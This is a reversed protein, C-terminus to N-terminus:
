KKVKHFIRLKFDSDIGFIGDEDVSFLHLREPFNIFGQIRGEWSLIAIRRGSVLDGEESYEPILLFLENQASACTWLLASLEKKRGGEFPIAIKRPSFKRDVEISKLFRGERSLVHLSRDNFRWILFFEGEAGKKLFAQNRMTDYVADGSISADVAEWLLKGDRNFCHLMKGKLSPKLPLRSVIIRDEDRVLIKQPFFPVKFGGRYTGDKGIVQIRRNGGDAIYIKDGLIDMDSPLVFESPGQGSKGITNRFSGSKRFVRIEGEQADLVFISDEDLCIAVPRSFFLIDQEGEDLLKERAVYTQQPFGSCLALHGSGIHLFLLIGSLFIIARKM